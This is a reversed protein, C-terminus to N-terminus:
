LGTTLFSFNDLIVEWFSANFDRVEFVPRLEFFIMFFKLRNVAHIYYNKNSIRMDVIQRIKRKIFNQTAMALLLIRLILHLCIALDKEINWYSLRHNCQYIEKNHNM